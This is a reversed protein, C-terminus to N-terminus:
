SVRPRPLAAMTDLTAQLPRSDTETAGAAICRAVEAAEYYLGEFHRGVPEDYHLVTAGDASRV